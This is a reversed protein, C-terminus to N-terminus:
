ITASRPRTSGDKGPGLEKKRPIVAWDPLALVERKQSRESKVGVGDGEGSDADAVCAGTSAAGVTGGDAKVVVTRSRKATDGVSDRKPPPSSRAATRKRSSSESVGDAEAAAGAQRGDSARRPSKSCKSENQTENCSMNTLPPANVPERRGPDGSDPVGSTPVGAEVATPLDSAADGAAEPNSMVEPISDPIAQQAPQTCDAQGNVGVAQAADNKQQASAASASLSGQTKKPPRGLTPRLYPNLKTFTTVHPVFSCRLLGGYGGSLLIIGDSQSSSGLGQQRPVHVLRAVNQDRTSLM